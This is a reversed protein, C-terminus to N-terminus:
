KAHEATLSARNDAWVIVNFCFITLGPTQAPLEARHMPTVKLFTFFRVLPPYDQKSEGRKKLM